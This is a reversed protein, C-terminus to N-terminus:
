HWWAYLPWVTLVLFAVFFVVLIALSAGVLTALWRVESSIRLAVHLAHAADLRAHAILRDRTTDDLSYEPRPDSYRGLDSALITEALKEAAIGRLDEGPSVKRIASMIVEYAERASMEEWKKMPLGTGQFHLGGCNRPAFTPSGGFCVLAM